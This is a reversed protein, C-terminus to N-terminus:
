RLRVRDYGDFQSMDSLIVIDGESLGQRIVIENVSSQGLQVQVRVANKGDAELKFLSITQNANGFQPRGVHLVGPLREIEIKGDVSLDPRAGPPLDDPLAVDVGVTGNQAAPDIRVVQGDVIGNRTDIHAIQGITVDVAQTEPIRLVAKLRGPKVVRALEFGPNVYQGVELDLRQLVGETPSAVNMSALDNRRFQVIAVLGDVESKQQQIQNEINNTVVSLRQKELELRQKLENLQDQAQAAQNAPILNRRALEENARAQREAENFQSQVTALQAAQNLRQTELNVQLTVLASRANSLQRQSELLQLEVDPNTLRLLPMGAQVQRGPRAYIEEVRGATIAPVLFIEEPVLTGPGGVQRIMDGLEVTDRWAVASDLSPPAPKLQSLGLTIAAALVITGAIYWPRRKKKPNTRPKDM